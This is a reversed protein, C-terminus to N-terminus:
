RLFGLDRDRSEANLDKTKAHKKNVAAGVWADRGTLDVDLIVRKRTGVGILISSDRSTEGNVPAPPNVSHLPASLESAANTLSNSITTVRLQYVITTKSNPRSWDESVAKGTAVTASVSGATPLVSGFLPRSSRPFGREFSEQAIM